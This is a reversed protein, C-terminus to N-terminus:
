WKSYQESRAGDPVTWYVAFAALEAVVVVQVVVAQVAVVVPVAVFAAAAIMLWGAVREIEKVPEPLSRHRSTM